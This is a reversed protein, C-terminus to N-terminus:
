MSTGIPRGLNLSARRQPAPKVPAEEIYRNDLRARLENKEPRKRAELEIERRVKEEDIIPRNVIQSFGPRGVPRRLTEIEIARRVKQEDSLPPRGRKKIIPSPEVSVGLQIPSANRKPSPSGLQVPSQPAPPTALIEFLDPTPEVKKLTEVTEETKTEESEEDLSISEPEELTTIDDLQTPEGITLPKNLEEQNKIFNDLTPPQPITELPTPIRKLEKVAQKSISVPEDLSNIVPDKTKIAQEIKAYLDKNFMKIYESIQNQVQLPNMGFQVPKPQEKQEKPKEISSRQGGGRKGKNINVIVTQEQKQQKQKQKQIKSYNDTIPERRKAKSKKKELTPPM